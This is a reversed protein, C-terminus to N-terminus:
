KKKFVRVYDVQLQQPMARDDITGGWAGGMALNLLLYQSQRFPNDPRTNGVSVDVSHYRKGDVFFEIRAPDWNVAYVHFGGDPHEVRQNGGSSRPKGHDDWHVTGYISNPDHGVFEMIDIEGCGPWGVAGINEGLTWFAPWVGKGSPLKARMELRGFLVSEKHLTNLSASTYEASPRSESEGTAGEKYHPNDWHEKRAEIILMGHEVRANERRGVTYFQAEHNRLFGEEYGWKTPDPLGEYDFEDSWALQWDDAARLKPAALLVGILAFFLPLMKMAHRDRQTSICAGPYTRVCSGRTIYM